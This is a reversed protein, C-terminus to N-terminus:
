SAAAAEGSAPAADAGAERPHRTAPEETWGLAALYDSMPKDAEDYYSGIPDSTTVAEAEADAPRGHPSPRQGNPSPRQGNAGPELGTVAGARPEAARQTDIEPEAAPERGAQPRSAPQASIRPEPAPQASVRPEPAPGPGAPAQVGLNPRVGDASLGPVVATEGVAMPPRAAQDATPERRDVARARPRDRGRRRHGWVILAAVMILVACLAVDILLLEPM